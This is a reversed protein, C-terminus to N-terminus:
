WRHDFLQMGAGAVQALEVVLEAIRACWEDASTPSGDLRHDSAEVQQSRPDDIGLLIWAACRVVDAEDQEDHQNAQPRM